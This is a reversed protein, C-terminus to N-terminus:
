NKSINLEEKITQYAILEENREIKSGSKLSSQLRNFFTEPTLNVENSMELKIKLYSLSDKIDEELQKDEIEINNAYDNIKQILEKSREVKVNRELDNILYQIVELTQKAIDNKLKKYKLVILINELINDSSM